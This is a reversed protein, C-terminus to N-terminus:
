RRNCNFALGRGGTINNKWYEGIAHAIHEAANRKNGNFIFFTHYHYGKSEGYELKSIRGVLHDFLENHRLNNYLRALDGHAQEVGVPALHPSYVGDRYGLDIRVILLRSHKDFLASLYQAGSRYNARAKELRRRQRSAFEGSCLKKRALEIIANFCMCEEISPPTLCGHKYDYGSPYHRALVQRVAVLVAEVHEGFHHVRDDIDACTMVTLFYAALPLRALAVRGFVEFGLGTNSEVAIAFEELRKIQGANFSDVGRITLNGESLDIFDISTQLHHYIDDRSIEDYISELAPDLKSTRM